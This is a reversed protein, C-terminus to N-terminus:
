SSLTVSVVLSALQHSVFIGSGLIFESILDTDDHPSYVQEPIAMNIGLYEIIEYKSYDHNMWNLSRYFKMKEQLEM